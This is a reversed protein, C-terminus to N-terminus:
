RSFAFFEKVDYKLLWDTTNRIYSQNLANERCQFRVKIDPKRNRLLRSKQFCIFNLTFESCNAKLSLLPPLANEVNFLHNKVVNGFKCKLVVTGLLDVASSGYAIFLYNNSQLHKM